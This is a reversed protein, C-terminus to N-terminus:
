GVAVQAPRGVDGDCGVLLQAGVVVAVHLDPGGAEHTGIDGLRGKPIENSRFAPGMEQKQMRRVHRLHGFAHRGVLRDEWTLHLFGAEAM